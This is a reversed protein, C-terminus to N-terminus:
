GSLTTGEVVTSLPSEGAASVATAALRYTRGAALSELDVNVEEGDAGANASGALVSPTATGGLGDDRYVNYSTTVQGSPVAVSPVGVVISSTTADFATPTGPASPSTSQVVSTSKAGEGALSLPAVVFEYLTGGALGAVEVATATNGAGDYVETDESWVVYDNFVDGFFHALVADPVDGGMLDNLEHVVRQYVRYGTVPEGSAPVSPADWDLMITTSSQHTSALSSAAPAATSQVLASTSPSEGAGSVASVAYSYSTGASLEVQEYATEAGEFLLAPAEGAVNYLRYGTADAGSDGDSAPASWSLSISASTQHVSTPGSAPAGPASSQALVSSLEGEGADSVASVAFSYLMGASLGSLTATTTSGDATTHAATGSLSAAASSGDNRYVQYSTVASGSSVVSASWSLSISTSTQSVSSLDLPSAPTTSQASEDSVESVGSGSLAAIMYTYTTGGTLGDVTTTLADGEFAVISPTPMATSDGDDRYVIYGTPTEGSPASWTLVMSTMAVSSFVMGSAAVVAPATSQTLVSSTV